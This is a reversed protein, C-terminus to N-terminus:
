RASIERAIDMLRCWHELHPVDEPFLASKNLVAVRLLQAAFKHGALILRAIICGLEEPTLVDSEQTNLNSENFNFNKFCAM